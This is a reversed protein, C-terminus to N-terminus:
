FPYGIGFNVVTTSLPKKDFMWRNGEALAPNYIKCAADLRLIFFGFDARVGFGTGTAFEKYFSSLKFDGGPKLPDPKRLWINGADVFWAGNLFKYINFRYELNFELQADGLKDFNGDTGQAYAGPGLARAKWARVSNPGGGFFSKEYPLVRLNHLPKGVGGAARFVVRGLKRITRYVRYDYDFRLFQAFPVNLIHYRGLSDKPAGALNYIGRLINGSSEANLRLFTFVRHNKEAGPTQNNYTFTYRSLTTVHDAFSNKLFFDNAADLAEQFSSKLHAKIINFEFPVISQRIYDGKKFQFGYSINSLTRAFEPRQQYNLSSTLITKPAANKNFKFFSFPFLQKPIYLNFEPGFQVTNFSSLIPIGLDNTVENNTSLNRQATLGGRLKLEMLEAGKFINRNQYVFSGAVGLNGSTNTGETEVTFNQKLIPTLQIFCDLKDAQGAVPKYQVGINKFARLDAFKNYTEESLDYNFLQGKSFMVKNYLDKKRFKLPGNSLFIVENYRLTDKFTQNKIGIAYDPIIYIENVYFRVHNRYLLTDHNDDPKYAVKKIGLTIDLQHSQLNTDVLYYIYEQAFNYYGNNKQTKVIREREKQLVDADYRMGQKILCNLSDQRVYYDLQEDDIKYNVNRVKYPVSKSIKYFVYARKKKYKFFLFKKYDVKVTSDKVVSNFYGKTALFKQMQERSVKTLFSDLITPAEGIELLNERFTLKDKDKLKPLRAPKGKKERKDNRINNKVIRKSNIRDYRKNRTEKKRRMKEQDVQNYLWLHFQIVKAIKRNPKQRIFSEIETNDLGTHKDLITNKELLYEEKKLKKTPNCALLAVCILM